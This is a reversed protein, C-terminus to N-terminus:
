IRTREWMTMECWLDIGEDRIKRSWLYIIPDFKCSKICYLPYKIIMWIMLGNWENCCCNVTWLGIRNLIHFNVQLAFKPSDSYLDDARRETWSQCACITSVADYYEHSACHLVIFFDEGLNLDGVQSACELVADLLQEPKDMLPSPSGHDSIMKSTLQVCPWVDTVTQDFNERRQLPEFYHYKVESKIQHFNLIIRPKSWNRM